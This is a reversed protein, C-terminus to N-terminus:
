KTAVETSRRAERDICAISPSVRALLAFGAESSQSDDVLVQIHNVGHGQTATIKVQPPLSTTQM